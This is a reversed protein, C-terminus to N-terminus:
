EPGVLFLKERGKKYTKREITTTIDGSWLEVGTPLLTQYESVFVTHGENAKTQCWAWFDKHWKNNTKDRYGLSGMYPPDCYILSTEGLYRAIDSYSECYFKCGVLKPGQKQANRRGEASFNRGGGKAYGGFWKAGFSCNIAAHAVLASDEHAKNLDKLDLYEEKSLNEPPLWGDRIAKLYAIVHTNIDFGVRPGTVNEIMNGGGVFPEVWLQGPRRYKLMIPLIHKVLRRKSGVYRM